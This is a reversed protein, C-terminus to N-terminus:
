LLISRARTTELATRAALRKLRVPDPCMVLLGVVRVAGPWKHAGVTFPGEKVGRSQALMLVRVSIRPLAFEFTFGAGLRKQPWGLKRAMLFKVLLALAIEFTGGAGLRKRLM